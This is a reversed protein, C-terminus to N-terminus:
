KVRWGVAASELRRNSEDSLDQPLLMNLGRDGPSFFLHEAKIGAKFTKSEDEIRRMKPQLFCTVMRTPLALAQSPKKECAKLANGKTLDFVDM